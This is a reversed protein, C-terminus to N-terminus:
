IAIETLRPVNQGAAPFLPPPGRCGMVSALPEAVRTLAFRRPTSWDEPAKVSQFWCTGIDIHVAIHVIVPDDSGDQWRGLVFPGSRNETGAM